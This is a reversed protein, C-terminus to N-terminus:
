ANATEYFQGGIRLAAALYNPQSVPANARINTNTTGTRISEINLDAATSVFESQRGIAAKYRGEQMALDSLLANVSNGAAGSDGAAVVARSRARRGEISAEIQKRSLAEKEQAERQRIDASQQLAVVKNSQIAQQQYNLQQNAAQQQGAVGAVIAASNLIPVAFKSATAAIAPLAPLCM